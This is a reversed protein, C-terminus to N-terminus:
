FEGPLHAGYRMDVPYVWYGVYCGWNWNHGALGAAQAAIRVVQVSVMYGVRLCQGGVGVEVGMELVALVGMGYCLHEVMWVLVEEGEQQSELVSYLSVQVKQKAM